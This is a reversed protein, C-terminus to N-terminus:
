AVLLEDNGYDGDPLAAGVERLENANLKRPRPTEKIKNTFVAPNEEAKGGRMAWNFMASISARARNAAVPGRKAAIATLLDALTRRDIKVM